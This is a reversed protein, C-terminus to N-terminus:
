HYPLALETSTDATGNLDADVYILVPATVLASNFALVYGRLGFATGTTSNLAAPQAATGGPLYPTLLALKANDTTAGDWKDQASTVGFISIFSDKAANLQMAKAKIIARENNLKSTSMRPLTLFLVIGLIVIMTLAELLTIASRYLHSRM